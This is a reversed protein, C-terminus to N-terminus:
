EGLQKQLEIILERVKDPTLTAVLKAANREMNSMSLSFTKRGGAEGEVEAALRAASWNHTVALDLWRRLATDDKQSTVRRFHEFSLLAAYDYRWSLDFRHCVVACNRITGNAKDTVVQAAREGWVTEGLLWADGIWWNLSGEITTLFNLGNGWQDLTIGPLLSLAYPDLQFGSLASQTTMDSHRQIARTM